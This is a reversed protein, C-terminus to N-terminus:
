CVITVGHPFLPIAQLFFCHLSCHWTCAPKSSWARGPYVVDLRPCSERHFLWDFHCLISIFPSLVDMTHGVRPDLVALSCFLPCSVHNACLPIDLTCLFISNLDACDAYDCRSKYLLVVNIAVCRLGRCLSAKVTYLCLVSNSYCDATQMCSEAFFYCFEVVRNALCAPGWKLRSSPKFIQFFHLIYMWYDLQAM